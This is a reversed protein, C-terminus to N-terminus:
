FQWFYAHNDILLYSCFLLLYQVLFFFLNLVVPFKFTYTWTLLCSNKCLFSLCLLIQWFHASTWLANFSHFTGTLSQLSQEIEWCAMVAEMAHVRVHQQLQDKFSCLLLVYHTQIVDSLNSWLLNLYNYTFNIITKDKYSNPWMTGM